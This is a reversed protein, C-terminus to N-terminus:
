LSLYNGSYERLLLPLVQAQTKVEMDLILSFDLGQVGLERAIYYFYM